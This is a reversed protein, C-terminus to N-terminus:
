ELLLASTAETVEDPDIVAPFGPVAVIVATELAEGFRLAVQLTVTSDPTGAVNVAVCVAYLLIWTFQDETVSLM